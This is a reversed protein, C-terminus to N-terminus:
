LETLEKGQMYFIAGRYDAGADASSMALVCREQERGATRNHYYAGGFTSAAQGIKATKTRASYHPLVDDLKKSLQVGDAFVKMMRFRELLFVINQLGATQTVNNIYGSGASAQMYQTAQGFVDTSFNLSYRYYQVDSADGIIFCYRKHPVESHAHVLQSDDDNADYCDWLRTQYRLTATSASEDGELPVGLEGSPHYMVTQTWDANDQALLGGALTLGLGLM